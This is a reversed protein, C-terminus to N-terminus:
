KIFWASLNIARRLKFCEFSFTKNKQKGKMRWIYNSEFERMTLYKVSISWTGRVRFIPELAIWYIHLLESHKSALSLLRSIRPLTSCGIWQPKAISSYEFREDFINYLKIILPLCMSIRQTQAMWTLINASITTVVSITATHPSRSIYSYAISHM